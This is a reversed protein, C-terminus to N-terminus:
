DDAVKEWIKIEGQAVVEDGRSVVGRIVGYGGFRSQKRVAIRLEDGVAATGLIEVAQAGVLFGGLAPEATGFKKWSQLAAMAQAIMEFFAVEDVRGGSVFPMHPRITVACTGIRDGVSVLTDVYQMPPKQPLLDVLSAPLSRIQERREPPQNRWCTPDSALYDATVAYTADRDGACHPLKECSQCPGKISSPHARLEEVIESTGLVDTLSADRLSGLVLGARGPLLVDGSRDVRCGYRHRLDRRGPWPPQPDWELGFEAADIRSLEGFLAELDSPSLGKRDATPGEIPANGFRPEYGATRVWRWLPAVEGLNAPCLDCEIAIAGPDWGRSELERRVSRAEKASGVRGVVHDHVEDSWGCRLLILRADASQLVDLSLGASPLEGVRAEIELGLDRLQSVLADLEAAEAWSGLLRIRRAGLDVAEAALRQVGSLPRGDPVIEVEIELLGARAVASEIEAASFADM